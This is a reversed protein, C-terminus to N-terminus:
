ILAKMAEVMASWGGKWDVCQSCGGDGDGDDDDDDDDDDDGDDDCKATRVTEGM